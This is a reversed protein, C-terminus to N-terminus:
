RVLLIASWFMFFFFGGGFGKTVRLWPIYMFSPHGLLQEQLVHAPTVDDATMLYTQEDINNGERKVCKSVAWSTPFVNILTSYLWSVSILVTSWNKLSAITKMKM